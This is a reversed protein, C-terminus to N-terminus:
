ARLCASHRRQRRLRIVITTLAYGHGGPRCRTLPGKHSVCLAQMCRSSLAALQSPADCAVAAADAVKTAQAAETGEHKSLPSTPNILMALTLAQAGCHCHWGM